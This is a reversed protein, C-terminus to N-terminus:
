FPILPQSNESTVLNKSKIKIRQTMIAKGNEDVVEEFGDGVKKMKKGMYCRYYVLKNKVQESIVEAAEEISAADGMNVQIGATFLDDQLRASADADNPDYLTEIRDGPEITQEKGGKPPIPHIAESKLIYYPAGTKKSVIVVLEQVQAVADGKLEKNYGEKNEQAERNKFTELISM